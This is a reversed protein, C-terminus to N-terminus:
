YTRTVFGNALYTDGCSLKRISYTQKVGEEISIDTLVRYVLNGSEPDRVLVEVNNRLDTVSQIKKRFMFQRLSSFGFDRIFLPHDPTLELEMGSCKIKLLSHHQQRATALIEAKELGGTKVDVSFIEDGSKLESIQETENDGGIQTTASLCCLAYTIESVAVDSWKLGKYVDLIEFRFVAEVGKEQFSAAGPLEFEQRGMEDSLELICIPKGNRYVRFKKVRSNNLWNKPSSQYGNYIANVGVGRVEFYEGIGYDPKGEVWATMPDNDNLNARSYNKSGQDPLTSSARVPELSQDCDNYFFGPGEKDEQKKIAPWDINRGEGGKAKILSIQSFVHQISIIFWLFCSISKM